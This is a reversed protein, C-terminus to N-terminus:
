NSLASHSANSRPSSPIHTSWQDTSTKIIVLAAFGDTAVKEESEHGEHVKLHPGEESNPWSGLGNLTPRTSEDPDELPETVTPVERCM